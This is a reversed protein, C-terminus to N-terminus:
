AFVAHLSKWYVELDTWIQTINKTSIYTQIINGLDFLLNKLIGFGVQSSKWLTMKTRKLWYLSYGFWKWLHTNLLPVFRVNNGLKQNESFMRAENAKEKAQMQKLEKYLRENEQQYGTLLQEQERVEKELRKLEEESAIQSSFFFLTFCKCSLHM